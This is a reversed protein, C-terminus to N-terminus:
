LNLWPPSALLRLRCSCFTEIEFPAVAEPDELELDLPPAPALEDNLELDPLPLDQASAGSNTGRNSTGFAAGDFLLLGDLPLFALRIDYTINKFWHHKQLHLCPHTLIWRSCTKPM